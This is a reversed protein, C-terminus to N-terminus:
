AQVQRDHSLEAIQEHFRDLLERNIKGLRQSIRRYAEHPGVQAGNELSALYQKIAKTLLENAKIDAKAKVHGKYWTKTATFGKENRFDFYKGPLPVFRKQKKLPGQEIWRRVLAIRELIEAAGAGFREPKAYVFYEALVARAREAEEDCIWKDAYLKLSACTWIVDVHRRIRERLAKPLGYVARNFTQPAKAPPHAAVQPPTGAKSAPTEYGTEPEQGTGPGSGSPLNEARLLPNEVANQRFEQPKGGNEVSSDPAFPQNEASDQFDAGSLKILQNTVQETSTVTHRLTQAMPPSFAPGASASARQQFGPIFQHIINDPNGREGIHVVLPSLEVEYQANSGHFVESTIIGAAKLRSRLNIVTRESCGLADALQNNNTRLNPLAEGILIGGGYAQENNLASGYLFLLYEALGKHASRLQDKLPKGANYREIFRDLLMKSKRWKISYLIM